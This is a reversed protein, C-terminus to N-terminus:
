TVVEACEYRPRAEKGERFTQGIAFARQYVAVVSRSSVQHYRILGPAMACVLTAKAHTSFRPIGLTPNRVHSVTLSLHNPPTSTAM